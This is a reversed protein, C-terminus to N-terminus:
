NQKSLNKHKRTVALINQFILKTDLNDINYNDSAYESVQKIREQENTYSYQTNDHVHLYIYDNILDIIQNEIEKKDSM